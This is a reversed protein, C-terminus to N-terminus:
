SNEPQLTIDLYSCIRPLYRIIQVKSQFFQFLTSELSGFVGLLLFFPIMFFLSSTLTNRETTGKARTVFLVQVNFCALSLLFSLSTFLPNPVSLCCIFHVIRCSPSTQRLFSFHVPLLLPSPPPPPQSRSNAGHSGHRQEPNSPWVEAGAERQVANSM